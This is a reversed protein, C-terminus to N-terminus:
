SPQARRAARSREIVPGLAALFADLARDADCLAVIAARGAAGLRRRLAADGILRRLAAAAATASGPRYTLGTREDEVYEVFPGQAPVVSPCARAMAEAVSMGFSEARSTCVMAGGSDRVADLWRSMRRHPLGRWWRLRGLVEGQRAAQRLAADGDPPASHGAIWLEVDLDGLERGAALFLRWNKLEDLRGVWAVVPVRPPAPFDRVPAVFPEGLPNPAIAIATGPPAIAAVLRRQSESPVVVLPHRAPDLRRLYGLSELYTSHCEVVVPPAEAGALDLPEPTDITCVADYRRAALHARLAAPTGVHVSGEVGAFVPMGGHEEFFWAGAEMGRRRLADLRARVVSEVGGLTLYRYVFLLKV